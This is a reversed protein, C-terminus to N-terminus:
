GGSAFSIERYGQCENGKLGRENRDSRHYDEDIKSIMTDYYL